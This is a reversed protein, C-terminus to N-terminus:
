QLATENTHACTTAAMFLTHYSPPDTRGTQQMRASALTPKLHPKPMPTAHQLEWHARKYVPHQKGQAKAAADAVTRM